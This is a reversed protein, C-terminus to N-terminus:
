ARRVIRGNRYHAPYGMNDVIPTDSADERIPSLVGILEDDKNWCALVFQGNVSATEVRGGAQWVAQVLGAYKAHVGVTVSTGPRVNTKMYDVYRRMKNHDEEPRGLLLYKFAKSMAPTKIWGWTPVERLVGYSTILWREGDIDHLVPGFPVSTVEKTTAFDVPVPKARLESTAFALRDKRASGLEADVKAAQARQFAELNRTAHGIRRAIVDDLVSIFKEVDQKSAALGRAVIDNDGVNKILDRLRRAIAVRKSEAAFEEEVQVRQGKDIAAIAKRVLLWDPDSNRSLERVKKDIFENIQNEINTQVNSLAEWDARMRRVEARVEREKGYPINKEAADMRAKLTDRAVYYRKQADKVADRVTLSFQYPAQFKEARTLWEVAQEGAEILGDVEPSGATVNGAEVSASLTSLWNDLVPLVRSRNQYMWVRLPETPAMSRTMMSYLDFGTM